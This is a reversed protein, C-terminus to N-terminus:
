AAKIAAPDSLPATSIFELSLKYAGLLLSKEDDADDDVNEDAVLVGVVAAVAAVWTNIDDDGDVEVM